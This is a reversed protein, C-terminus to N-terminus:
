ADYQYLNNQKMIQILTTAYTGEPCYGCKQLQRAFENPNNKVAMCPKYRPGQLFLSHDRISDGWSAYARFPQSHSKGGDITMSNVIGIAITGKKGGLAKIGFLNKGAGITKGGWGTELAAQAITVSAPVGYKKAQEKALPAIMRIFAAKSLKGGKWNALEASDGLSGSSDRSSDSISTSDSSSDSSANESGALYKSFVYATRGNYSIKTWDGSKGIISVQNGNYLKGLLKGNPGDRVALFSNVKVTGTTQPITTTENGTTTADSVCLLNEPVAGTFFGMKGLVFKLVAKEIATSNGTPASNLANALSVCGGGPLQLGLDSNTVTGSASTKEEDRSFIIGQGWSSGPVMLFIFIVFFFGLLQNFRRFKVSCNM